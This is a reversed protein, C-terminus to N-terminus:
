RSFQSHARKFEIQVNQCSSIGLGVGSNSNHVEVNTLVVNEANNLDIGSKSMDKVVVNEIRIGTCGPESHIGYYKNPAPGQLTFGSLESCGWDTIGSNDAPNPQWGPVVLEIGWGNTATVDIITNTPGAGVLRIKHALRISVGNTSFTGASLTLQDNKVTSALAARFETPDAGNYVTGTRVNTITSGGASSVILLLLVGVPAVANLLMTEPKSISTRRREGANGPGLLETDVHPCTRAGGRRM